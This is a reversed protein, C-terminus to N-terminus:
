PLGFRRPDPCFQAEMRSCAPKWRHHKDMTRSARSGPLDPPRLFQVLDHQCREEHVAKGTSANNLCDRVLCLEPVQRHDHVGIPWLVKTAARAFQRKGSQQLPARLLLSQRGIRTHPAELACVARGIGLKGGIHGRELAQMATIIINTVEQTLERTVRERSPGPM